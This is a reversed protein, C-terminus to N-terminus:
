TVALMRNLAIRAEEAVDDEVEIRNVVVGENLGDLVWSVYAPHIRYMTSCPCIVSDLCFVLKDPNQAALRNVLSIETGVAWVSGPASEAIMKRIYETSGNFDAAQVVEMTCEPHVLVNVDPYKQRALAIQDLTFRTHVSCHGQWLIVKSNILQEETNGGLQKFPNWLVMEDLGIGMKLGTNRGLHQDPLFLVRDGRELAWEFTAAANSSTCVIGNDRGCLAKIDATSNMYTIPVTAGQNAFLDSLDDWCDLVDDIQAMDAMSCGATLNPLIVKQSNSSLIDATEAMFHVGCFVIFEASEQSAALQSLKFSDGQFDAFKIVEDRQYHHGLVVLREGLKARAETIRADLDDPSTRMYEIPLKQWRVGVSFEDALTRSALEDDTTCFASQEIETIPITPSKVDATVM